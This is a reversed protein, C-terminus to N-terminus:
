NTLRSTTKILHQISRRIEDNSPIFDIEHVLRNRTKHSEWAHNYTNADFLHKANKLRHGMTDGKIGRTKLAYDLLKDADILTSKLIITQNSKSHKQLYNLRTHVEKKWSPDKRSFLIVIVIITIIISIFIITILQQNIIM